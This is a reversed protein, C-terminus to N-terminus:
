SLSEVQDIIERFRKIFSRQSFNKRAYRYGELSMRKLDIDSMQLYKAVAKEVGSASGSEIIFGFQKLPTEGGQTVIPILGHNIGVIVAGHTECANIALASIIAAHDKVLEKYSDSCVDIWGKLKINQSVDLIPKLAELFELEGEIPGYIDLNWDKHKSFAEIIIDLGNLAFGLGSIYVFSRKVNKWDKEKMFFDFDDYGHNRFTFIPGDFVVRYTDEVFKTGLLVIADIQKWMRFDNYALRNEKLSSGYKQNIEKIRLSEMRNQFEWYTGTGLYVKKTFLSPNNVCLFDFAEGMGLLLDYNNNIKKSVSIARYDLIDVNYGKDRLIEAIAISRWRNTHSRFKASGKRTQFAEAVYVLLVKKSYKTRFYNRYLKKKVFLNYFFKKINM